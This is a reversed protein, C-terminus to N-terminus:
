SIDRYVGYVKVSAAETAVIKRFVGYAKVSGAEVAIIKRFVGYVKLSGAEAAVFIGPEPQPPAEPFGDGLPKKNSLVFGKIAM